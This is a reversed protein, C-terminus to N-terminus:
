FVGAHHFPFSSVFVSVYVKTVLLLKRQLRKMIDSQQQLKSKEEVVKQQLARMEDQAQKLHKEKINLSDLLFLLSHRNM